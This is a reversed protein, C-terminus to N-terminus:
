AADSERAIIGLPKLDAYADTINQATEGDEFVLRGKKFEMDRVFCVAEVAGATADTDHYVIAAATGTADYLEYNSNTDNYQLVTGSKYVNASQALTLVERSRDGNAESVFYELNHQGETLVTM